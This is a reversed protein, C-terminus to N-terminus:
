QRNDIQISVDESYDAIYFASYGIL